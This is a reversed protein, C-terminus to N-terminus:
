DLKASIPLKLDNNVVQLSVECECRVDARREGEDLFSNVSVVKSKANTDKFIIAEKSPCEMTQSFFSFEM